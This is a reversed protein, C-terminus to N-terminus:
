LMRNKALIEASKPSQAIASVLMITEIIIDDEVM